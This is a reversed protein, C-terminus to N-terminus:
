AGFVVSLIIVLGLAFVVATDFVIWYKAPLDNGTELDRPDKPM